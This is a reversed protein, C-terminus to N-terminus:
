VVVKQVPHNTPLDTTLRTKHYSRTTHYSRALPRGEYSSCAFPSM